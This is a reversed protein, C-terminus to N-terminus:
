QRLTIAHSHYFNKLRQRLKNFVSRAAKKCGTKKQKNRQRPERHDIWGETTREDSRSRKFHNKTAETPTAQV